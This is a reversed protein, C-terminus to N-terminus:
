WRGSTTTPRDSSQTGVRARRLGGCQPNRLVAQEEDSLPVLQVPHAPFSRPYEPYPFDLEPPGSAFALLEVQAGGSKLRYPFDAQAIPCTWCFLVPLRSLGIERLLLVDDNADLTLLTLLPKKCNPCEAGTCATEGCLHHRPAVSLSSPTRLWYGQSPWVEVSQARSVRYELYRQVEHPQRVFIRM